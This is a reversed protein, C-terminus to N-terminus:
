SDPVQKFDGSLLVETKMMYSISLGDGEKAAPKQTCSRSESGAKQNGTSVLLSYIFFSM